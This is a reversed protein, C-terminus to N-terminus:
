VFVLMDGLIHNFTEPIVPGKGGEPCLTIEGFFVRNQSEYLDVRVFELGESLKTSVEIMEDLKLPREPIVSAKPYCITFPLSNWNLDFFAREHRSFRGIDVQIVKPVGNFCFIKYDNINYGLLEECVICPKISKYQYERSLYFANQSLWRNLKSKVKRFDLKSKDTCIVNWGSGHNTKLVFQEPLDDWFIQNANSYMGILPILYEEGVKSRVFERVAYKDALLSGNVPRRYLKIHNIKENFVIPERIKM